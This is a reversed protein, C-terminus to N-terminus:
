EAGLVVGVQRDKGSAVTMYVVIAGICGLFAVSTYITGFGVGGYDV